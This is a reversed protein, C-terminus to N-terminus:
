RRTTPTESTSRRGQHLGLPLASTALSAHGSADLDVPSGIPTGDVTFQVQGTPQGPFPSGSASVTASLTVSDGQASVASSQGVTVTAQALGLAFAQVENEPTEFSVLASGQAALAASAAADLPISRADHGRGLDARRAVPDRAREHRAVM